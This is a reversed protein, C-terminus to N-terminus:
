LQQLSSYLNVEGSLVYCCLKLLCILEETFTMVDIVALKRYIADCFHTQLTFSVLLM